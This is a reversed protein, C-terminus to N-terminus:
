KSPFSSPTTILTPTPIPTTQGGNSCIVGADEPHSCDHNGIGYHACDFISSENGMCNIGDLLIDGTGEGFYAEDFANEAGSTFISILVNGLTGNFIAFMM